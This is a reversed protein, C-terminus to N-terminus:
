RINFNRGTAGSIQELSANDLDLGPWRKRRNEDILQKIKALESSLLKYDQKEIVQKLVDSGVASISGGLM